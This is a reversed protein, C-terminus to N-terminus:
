IKWGEPSGGDEETLCDIAENLQLLDWRVDKRSMHIPKPWVGAKVQRQFTAISRGTYSAALEATLLRPWAEPIKQGM